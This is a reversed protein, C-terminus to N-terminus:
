GLAPPKSDTSAPLAYASPLPGDLLTHLTYHANNSDATRPGATVNRGADFHTVVLKM